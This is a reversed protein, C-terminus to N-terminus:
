LDRMDGKTSMGLARTDARFDGNHNLKTGMMGGRGKKGEGCATRSKGIM